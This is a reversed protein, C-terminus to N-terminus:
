DGGKKKFVVIRDPNGEYGLIEDVEREEYDRFDEFVSPAIAELDLLVRKCVERIEWQAHKDLRLKLIHRWERFNATMVMNTTTGQPLYFRADEKKIGNAILEQYLKYGWQLYEKLENQIPYPLSIEIKPPTRFEEPSAITYRHSRVSFSALRHRTIQTLFIRSVGKFYFTASAHELPSEHGKKILRRIFDRVKDIDEAESWLSELTGSHYCTRGAIYILREPDPTHTLLVVQMSM